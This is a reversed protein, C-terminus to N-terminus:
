RLHRDLESQKQQLQQQQQKIRQENQQMKQNRQNAQRDLDSQMRNIKEKAELLKKEKLVDGEKNAEAVTNKYTKKLVWTWVALVVAGGVIVGILAALILSIDM